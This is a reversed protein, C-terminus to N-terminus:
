SGAVAPVIGLPVAALNGRVAMTVPSGAPGLGVVRTQTPNDVEFITLSLETSALVVGVEATEPPLAETGDDSCAALLLAVLFPAALFPASSCRVARSRAERVRPEALEGPGVLGARRRRPAGEAHPRAELPDVGAGAFELCLCRIEIRSVLRALGVAGAFAFGPRAIAVLHDDEAAPRIPDALADLEVIAAHM